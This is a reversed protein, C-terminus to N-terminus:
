PTFRWAISQSAGVANESAEKWSLRLDCYGDYPPVRPLSLAPLVTRRVCAIAGSGPGLSQAFEWRWQALDRQALQMADCPSLASCASPSFTGVQAAHDGDYFGQWVAQANSSMRDMMSQALFVARTHLASTQQQRMSMTLMAAVGLLGFGLVVITVLVEVMSFGSRHGGHADQKLM